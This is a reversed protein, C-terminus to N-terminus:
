RSVPFRYSVALALRGRTLSSGSGTVEFALTGNFLRQSLNAQVAYPAIDHRYPEARLDLAVTTGTGLRDGLSLRIGPAPGSVGTGFLLTGLWRPARRRNLTYTLGLAAFGSALSPEGYGLFSLTLDNRDQLRRITASTELRLGSGHATFLVGPNAEIITNRSLRYSVGAALTVATGGGFAIDPLEGQGFVPFPHFGYPLNLALLTNLKIAVPGVVGAAAVGGFFGRSTTIEMGSRLTIVGLPGFTEAQKLELALRSDAGGSLWLTATTAEVRFGEFALSLRPAPDSFLSDATISISQADARQDTSYVIVAYLALLIRFIWAREKMRNTHRM